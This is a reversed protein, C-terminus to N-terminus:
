KLLQRWPVAEQEMDSALVTQMGDFGCVVFTHGGFHYGEPLDFWPLMGMDGYM